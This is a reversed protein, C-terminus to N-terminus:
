VHMKTKYESYYKEEDSKNDYNYKYKINLYTITKYDEHLIVIAGQDHSCFM